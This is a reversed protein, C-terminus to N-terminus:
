CSNKSRPTAVSSAKLLDTRRSSPKKKKPMPSNKMTVNYDAASKLKLINNLTVKLVKKDPDAASKESAARSKSRKVKKKKTKKEQKEKVKEEKVIEKNSKQITDLLAIIQTLQM